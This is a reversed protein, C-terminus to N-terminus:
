GCYLGIQTIFCSIYMYIFIWIYLVRSSVLNQIYWAHDFFLITSHERDIRRLANLVRITQRRHVERTFQRLWWGKDIRLCAPSISSLPVSITYPFGAYISYRIFSHFHPARFHFVQNSIYFKNLTVYICLKQCNIVARAVM